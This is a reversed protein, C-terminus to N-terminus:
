ANPNVIPEVRDSVPGRRKVPPFVAIGYPFARQTMRRKEDATANDWVESLEAVTRPYASQGAGAEILAAREGELTAIRADLPRTAADYRDFSIAGKGLRESLERATQDAREIEGEVKALAASKRAIQTAHRPDSLVKLAHEKVWAEINDAKVYSRAPCQRRETISSCRYSRANTTCGVFNAGCESCKLIGGSLFYTPHSAPRGRGRSALVARVRLLLDVSVIPEVDAAKLYQGAGDKILEGNHEILGANRARGLIARVPIATFVAAKGTTRLGMANWKRAIATLSIGDVHAQTADAIANREVELLEPTVNKGPFGFPRIGGTGSYGAMRRRENKAKTRRSINDGEKEAAATLVRLTFRDDSSGLDYEGFCSGVIFGQDGLNILTALDDSRRMLRDVHWCIVGQNLKETLRAILAKWGPRKGNKKWASLNDDRLVEGLRAGRRAIEGLIDVLQSDTKEMVGSDPNRSIRAYADLVAAGKFAPDDDRARLQAAVEQWTALIQTM